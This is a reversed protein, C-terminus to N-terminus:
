PHPYRGVVPHGGAAMPFPRARPLVQEASVPSGALYERLHARIWCTRTVSGARDPPLSARAIKAGEALEAPRSGPSSTTARTTPALDRVEILRRGEAVLASGKTRTVVTRWPARRPWLGHLDV